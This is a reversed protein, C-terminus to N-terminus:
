RPAGMDDHGEHLQLAPVVSSPQQRTVIGSLSAESDLLFQASAVVKQGEELGATVITRDDVERGLTVEVPTFRGTEQVLMVLARKGTRIIAETPVALAPEAGNTELRVQASMGARLERQPNPIEIRVRLTRSPAALAPLVASIQGSFTRGPYAALQVQAYGGVQVETARREPVAVELWVSDLGQVQALTQGAALTMGSRVDLSVLMGARSSTVVFSSRAHGTKDLESIMAESMGLLRLRQRAADVLTSDATSRLVLYEGQAATWEPILIEILPQGAALVDGPALPWVRQVLGASRAQELTVDRENFAVLAAAEIVSVLAIREVLAERMGINQAVRADINVEGPSDNNAVDESAYKPVLDMDMFPSKGPQDFHHQPSMPDYWYLVSRQASHAADSTSHESTPAVRGWWWGAVAGLAILLAGCALTQLTNRTHSM